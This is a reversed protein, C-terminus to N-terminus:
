TIMCYGSSGAGAAGTWSASGYDFLRYQLDLIAEGWLTNGIRALIRGFILVALLIALKVWRNFHDTKQLLLCIPWVFAAYAAYSLPLTNVIALVSALSGKENWTHLYSGAAVVNLVILVVFSVISVIM